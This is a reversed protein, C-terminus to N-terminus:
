YKTISSDIRDAYALIGGELNYLNEFGHLQELAQVASASRKGSRCYVVVKKDRLVKDANDMIEALPILEGGLSAIEREYPERVDILQFNGGSKRLADFEEVTIEKM